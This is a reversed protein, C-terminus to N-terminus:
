KSSWEERLKALQQQQEALAREMAALKDQRAAADANQQDIVTTSLQVSTKGHQVRYSTTVDSNPCRVVRIPDGSTTIKFTIYTCDTLGDVSTLPLESQKWQEPPIPQSCSTVTLTIIAVIGCTLITALLRNYM